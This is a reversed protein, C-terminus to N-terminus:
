NRGSYSGPVYSCVGGWCVYIAGPYTIEQTVVSPTPVWPPIYAPEDPTPTAGTACAVPFFSLVATLTLVLCLPILSILRPHM